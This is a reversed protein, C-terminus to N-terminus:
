TLILKCITAVSVVVVTLRIWKHGSKLVIGAGLFNGALYTSAALLGVQWNVRGSSAFYILAGVNSAVNFAKSIANAVQTSFGKSELYSLFFIGTGPGLIGDYFGIAPLVFDGSKELSKATLPDHKISKKEERNKGLSSFFWNKVLLALVLSLVVPMIMRLNSVVGHYTSVLAGLVAFIILLGIRRMWFAKTAHGTLLGARFYRFLSALSGITSITKNTGLTLHPPIGSIMLAPITILGGGGGMADVLGAFFAAFFIFMM